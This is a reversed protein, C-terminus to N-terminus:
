GQLDYLCVSLLTNFGTVDGLNLTALNVEVKHCYCLCVSLLTNFGTIDGFSLTALVVGVKSLGISMM